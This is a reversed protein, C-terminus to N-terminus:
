QLMKAALKVASVLRNVDEVHNYVAFSARVTGSINLKKMIPQACHHGTRVAIGKKDLIMGVDSAHVGDLNLNFSVVGARPADKAYIVLEPIKSLEDTAYKLLDTELQKINNIGIHQIFDIAAGAAINGAINPTGAELKFPLNAYTSAQMSVEKIMEGGGLFPPLQNLIAEKGYLIGVGTPGYLKHMSFAYFDADLEQVNVQMHPASQAGDIFVWANKSRAKQIIKKIPNIVGLANSIYNISIIKTNNNLLSDLQTLDLTGDLNMPIYRLRAGTKQCLMQWPVINSHHELETIIIEDDPSLLSQLSNSVLNISETTGKTFIVEHPHKAGIFHQIKVRSEEMLNTAEQSTTHIGRHVNSNFQQYYYQIAQLVQKPKQTTAANDLYAIPHNNVVKSLFPFEQQIQNM